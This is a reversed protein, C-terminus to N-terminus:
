LEEGWKKKRRLTKLSVKLYYTRYMHTGVTKPIGVVREHPECIM